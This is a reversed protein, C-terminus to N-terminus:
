GLSESICGRSATVPHGLVVGAVGGEVSGGDECLFELSVQCLGSSDVFVPGLSVKVKDKYM